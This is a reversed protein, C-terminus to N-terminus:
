WGDRFVAGALAWLCRPSGLHALCMALVQALSNKQFDFAVQRFQSYSVSTCSGGEVLKGINWSWKLAGM